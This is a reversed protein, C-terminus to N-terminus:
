HSSDHRPKIHVVERIKRSIQEVVHSLTPLCMLERSVANFASSYVNIKNWLAFMFDSVSARRKYNHEGVSSSYISAPKTKIKEVAGVRRRDPKSRVAWDAFSQKM